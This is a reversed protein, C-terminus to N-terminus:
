ARPPRLARSRRGQRVDDGFQLEEDAFLRRDRVQRRLLCLATKLQHKPPKEADERLGFMRQREKEVIQLPEVRRRELHEGIQQGLWVHLLQQHDAGIPVVFDVGNMRQHALEIGDALRSREHLLDPKRRESLFIQPPENGLRQAARWGTGGRQRAQYVVLRAAIRKEGDLENRREGFLPQEAEIVIRRAPLPLEIAKVGLPVGVIHRVKHYSLQGAQRDLGLRRQLLEGAEAIGGLDRQKRANEPFWLVVDM